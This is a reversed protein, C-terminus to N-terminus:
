KLAPSNNGKLSHLAELFNDVAENQQVMDVPNEMYVSIIKENLKQLKNKQNDDMADPAKIKEASWEVYFSPEEIPSLIRGNSERQFIQDMVIPSLGFVDFKNPSIQNSCEIDVIKAGYLNQSELYSSLMGHYNSYKEKLINRYEEYKLGLIKAAILFDYREIFNTGDLVKWMDDEESKYLNFMHGIPKGEDTEEPSSCVVLMNPIKAETLKFWIYAAVNRCVGKRNKKFDDAWFELTQQTNLQKKVGIQYIRDAHKEDLTCTQLFKAIENITNLYGFKEAYTCTNFIFTIASILIVRKFKM